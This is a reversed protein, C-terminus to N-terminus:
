KGAQLRAITRPNDLLHRFGDRVLESISGYEGSEVLDEMAKLMTDPMSIKVSKLKM